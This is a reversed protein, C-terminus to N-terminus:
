DKAESDSRIDEQKSSLRWSPASVLGASWDQVGGPGDIGRGLAHIRSEDLLPIYLSEDANIRRVEALGEDPTLDGSLLARRTQEANAPCYGSLDGAWPRTSENTSEKDRTATIESGDSESTEVRQAPETDDPAATSEPSTCMFANAMTQSNIATDEWTLVADIEGEPLKESTLTTMRESVVETPVEFQALMDVMTNAATLAVSDTPDVGIRIPRDQARERLQTIDRAGFGRMGGYPVRLHNSRGAALRAVQTPDILSVIDRRLEVDDLAGEATSLHMRLQRMPSVIETEVGPLLSLAEQTTQAPTFDAFGIQGSRLMNVAQSTSRVAQLQIVDIQAPNKGWFRDNRNLTIVGRARDVNDVLYRGASAPISSTLATAFDGEGRLLHSPLLDNFLLNWDAVKEAFDVTVVRGSNSTRIASIAHYGAPSQVGATSIMSNWLFTFDAGTIPTGDSWQAEPAIEYRVRQEVGEPAEIEEASSLIDTDMKGYRFTSPLVLDAIQAVLESNNAILHPNLGSALPDVGIAVESRQQTPSENTDKEQANEEDGPTIPSIDTDEEVPAPGPNAMCGAALAAALGFGVSVRALRHVGQKM